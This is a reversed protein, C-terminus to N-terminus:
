FGEQLLRWLDNECGAGNYIGVGCGSWVEPAGEFAATVIEADDSAKVELGKRM